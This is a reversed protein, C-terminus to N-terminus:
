SKDSTFPNERSSANANKARKLRETVKEVVKKSKRPLFIYFTTGQGVTSIVDIWGRHNRVTGYAMALGMGTGKGFPKTTFFPDFIKLLLEEDMGEGNDRIAICHYRKKNIRRKAGPPMFSEAFDDAHCLLMSLLHPEPVEAMADAANLLMNIIVQQLQIMDGKVYMEYSPSEIDFTINHHSGPNFLESSRSALERLDFYTEQYKGRRAFGLLQETLKGAQETIFAVKGLRDVVKENEVDYFLRIIDVHGQIAHIHNNFDHAIGGALRGVSELRQAHALQESLLAKDQALHSEETVDRGIALFMRVNEFVISSIGFDIERRKEGEGCYAKFRIPQVEQGESQEEFVAVFFEWELRNGDQDRMLDPMSINPLKALSPVQFTALTAKNADLIIGDPSLLMILEGASEVVMQYRGEWERLNRQLTQARGYSGFFAFVIDLARRQEGPKEREIRFVYISALLSLWVTAASKVVFSSNAYIWWQPRNWFTVSLYVFSDVLQTFMLAGLICFFMRCKMNRLRQFFIPLLFLDLAQALTSGAMTHRSQQLMFDVSDASTGDSIAHGMWNLQTITLSSLYFFLGLATMAGIIMRQAALTGDCVYILLLITLYPLFLVTPGIYFDMGISGPIIIKLEAASVFQTFVFLLGISIYFATSGFLRRVSYMLMLAVFVFSMELFALLIAYISEL